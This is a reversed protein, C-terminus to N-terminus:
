ELVESVMSKEVIDWKYEIFHVNELATAISRGFFNEPASKSLYLGSDSRLTVLYFAKQFEECLLAAMHAGAPCIYTESEQKMFVSYVSDIEYSQFLAGMMNDTILVVSIKREELERLSASVSEEFPRLETVFLTIDEGHRNILLEVFNITPISTCLINM